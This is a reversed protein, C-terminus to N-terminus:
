LMVKSEWPGWHKHELVLERVQERSYTIKEETQFLVEYALEGMRIEGGNPLDIARGEHVAWAHAFYQGRLKGVIPKGIAHVLVADPNDLVYNGAAQYCDGEKMSGVEGIGNEM